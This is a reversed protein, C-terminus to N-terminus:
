GKIRLNRGMREYSRDVEYNLQLLVKEPIPPVQGTYGDITINRTERM